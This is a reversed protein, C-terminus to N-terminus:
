STAPSALENRLFARALSWDRIVTNESVGLLAAVEAVEMGAFFRLEVVRCKREDLEALRRLAEDLAIMEEACADARIEARDLEIRVLGGGRKRRKRTRAFDVLIQRMLSAAVGFFHLRNEWNISGPVRMLRIYAENVLVTTQLVSRHNENRMYRSAIRQLEHQVLPILQCLAEKDGNKWGHLLVTIDAPPDSNM